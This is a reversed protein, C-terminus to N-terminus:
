HKRKKKPKSPARPKALVSHELPAAQAPVVEDATEVLPVRVAQNNIMTYELALGDKSYRPEEGPVGYCGQLWSPSGRFQSEPLLSAGTQVKSLVGRTYYRVVPTIGWKHKARDPSPVLVVTRDCNPGVFRRETKAGICPGVTEWVKSGNVGLCQLECKDGQSRQRLMVKGDGSYQTWDGPGREVVDGDPAIPKAAEALPGGSSSPLGKPKEDASAMDDVHHFLTHGPIDPGGQVSRELTSISWVDVTSDNDINGTCVVTVAQRACHGPGTCIRNPYDRVGVQALVEPPIGAELEANSMRALKEDAAYGVDESGPENGQALPGEAAFRYLYRRGSADRSAGPRYDHNIALVANDPFTLDHSLYFASFSRDLAKLQTKCESQRSRAQFKLFNPVAVAMGVSVVVPFGILGLVLSVVMLAKRPAYEPEDSKVLGRITLVLGVLWLPLICYGVVTLVLAVVPVSSARSEPREFNM